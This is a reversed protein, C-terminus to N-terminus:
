AYSLVNELLNLFTSHEKNPWARELSSKHQKRKSSYIQHQIIFNIKLHSKLRNKSERLADLLLLM